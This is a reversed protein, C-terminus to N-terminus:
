LCVQDISDVPHCLNDGGITSFDETAKVDVKLRPMPFGSVLEWTFCHFPSCPVPRLHDM